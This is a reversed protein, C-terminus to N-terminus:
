RIICICKILEVKTLRYVMKYLFAVITANCRFFYENLCFLHFIFM